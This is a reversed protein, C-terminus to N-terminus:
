RTARTLDQRFKTRSGAREAVVSAITSGQEILMQQVSRADIASVNFYVHTDGGGGGTLTVPITRNDPLPVFAERNRGEGFLALTPGNTVGGAAFARMPTGMSGEVVGGKELAVGGGGGGGFVSSLSRVIILRTIIRALDQVFSRAFDKLADKLKKTGTLADAFADTLGNFGGEVITNAAAKGAKGFDTIEAIATKTGESFGEWFDGGFARQADEKAKRMAAATEEAAKAAERLREELQSEDPLPSKLPTGFVSQLREGAKAAEEAQQVFGAFAGSEDSGFSRGTTYGGASDRVSSAADALEKAVRARVQQMARALGGELQTQLNEIRFRIENESPLLAEVDVRSRSIPLGNVSTNISNLLGGARLTELERSSLKSERDQAERLSAILALQLKAENIDTELAQKDILDVPSIKEIVRVLGIAADAALGFSRVLGEGIVRAVDLIGDRNSTIEKSLREFLAIADPGFEEILARSVGGLATGIGDLSQNLKQAINAQSETVTAGIDRAKRISEQFKQLGNGLVPLLRLFQEPMVKGLAVAKEQQTGYRELGIAMQEFLQAPALTQLDELSIGLDAFAKALQANGPANRAANLLSRITGEFADGGLKARALVAELESLNEVTDGTSASLKLLADAQEGFAKVTSLSLFSTALGLVATKLNFVSGLINKTSSVIARGFALFKGQMQGLPRTMLDALKATITLQRNESRAM